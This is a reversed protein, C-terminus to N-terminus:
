SRRLGPTMTSVAAEFLGTPAQSSGQAIRARPRIIKIDIWIGSGLMARWIPTVGSATAERLSASALRRVRQVVRMIRTHAIWAADTARSFTGDIRWVFGTFPQDATRIRLRRRRHKGRADVVQPSLFEAHRFGIARQGSEVLVSHGRQVSRM